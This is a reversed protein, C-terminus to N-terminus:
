TNSLCKGDYAGIDVFIGKERYSLYEEVIFRDQGSQSFFM